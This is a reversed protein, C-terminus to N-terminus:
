ASRAESSGKYPVHVAELGRDKLIMEMGIHALNGVGPSGYNFVGPKEKVQSLWEEFNNAPFDKNVVMVLPLTATGNVPALDRLPDAPLNRYLAPSLALSSSNYLVTYGDPNSNAVYGAAINGNAGPKNDVIVSQKLQSSLQEALVRAMIDNPGGPAFGVVLHLPREPWQASAIGPAVLLCAFTSAALRARIRSLKLIM